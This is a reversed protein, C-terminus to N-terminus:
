GHPFNLARILNPEMLAASVSPHFSTRTTGCVIGPHWVLTARLSAPNAEEDLGEWLTSQSLDFLLASGSDSCNRNRLKRKKKVFTWEGKCSLINVSIYRQWTSHPCGISRTGESVCTMFIGGAIHVFSRMNDKWQGLDPYFDVSGKGIRRTM